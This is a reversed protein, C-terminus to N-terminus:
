PYVESGQAPARQRDDEAGKASQPGPMKGQFSPFIMKMRRVGTEEDVVYCTSDRCEGDTAKRKKKM